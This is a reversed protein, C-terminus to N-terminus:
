PHVRPTFHLFRKQKFSMVEWKLFFFFVHSLSPTFYSWQFWSKRQSIVLFTLMFWVRQPEYSRSIKSVLSANDENVLLEVNPSKNRVTTTSLSQLEELSLYDDHETPPTWIKNEMKFFLKWLSFYSLCLFNECYQNRFFKNQPFLSLLFFVQREDFFLVWNIFVFCFLSFKLLHSASTQRIACQTAFFVSFLCLCFVIKM